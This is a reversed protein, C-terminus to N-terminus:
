EPKPTAPTSKPLEPPKIYEAPLEGTLSKLFTIISTADEPILRKGTQFDAMQMVAEELAEIKGNHFYPGTKEINRLSPVKFFMTDTDAKTVKARGLDSQDPYAKAAGLKQYVNGGLLTGAHCNDCGMAVFRNFGIKEAETLAAQDGRLFKDWRAPTVLNREFAGIAKGMNEYSVPIRDKPFAKKFAAVYEPMSTLVKLVAKENPMAMEVPNLVPGKAQAEVDPARGDWFQAFHGAAHYVTPANRDGTQGKHGDSTTQGDVGYKDLLHCTNCSIEQSKSLRPEYFLMRGLKIQEESPADKANFFADPLPSFISLLAPDIIATSKAQPQKGCSSAFLVLVGILLGPISIIKKM